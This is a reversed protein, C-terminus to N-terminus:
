EPLDPTIWSETRTSWDVPPFLPEFENVCESIHECLKRVRDSFLIDAEGTVFTLFCVQVPAPAFEIRASEPAPIRLLPASPDIVSSDPVVLKVDEIDITADSQFVLEDIAIQGLSPTLARHKDTNSWNQVIALPNVLRMGANHYPQHSEMLDLAPRDFYQAARHSTFREPSSTIPFTIVNGVRPDDLAEEGVHTLALQWALQDLASRLDHIVEGLILGLYLPPPKGELYAYHADQEFRCTLQHPHAAAYTDCHTELASAQQVARVLKGRPGDLPHSAVDMAPM